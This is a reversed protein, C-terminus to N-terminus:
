SDDLRIYIIRRQAIDDTMFYKRLREENATLEGTFDIDGNELGEILMDWETLYPIFPIEFLESLWRCFLAAFGSISGDQTRFAETSHLASYVFYDVQERLAEIAEIDDSTVGPIDMFSTFMGTDQGDEIPAFCGTLTASLM